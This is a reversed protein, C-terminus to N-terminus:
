EPEWILPPEWHPEGLKMPPRPLPPLEYVIKRLTIPDVGDVRRPRRWEGIM